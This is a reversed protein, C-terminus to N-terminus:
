NYAVRCPPPFFFDLVLGRSMGSNLFPRDQCNLYDNEDFQLINRRRPLPVNNKCCQVDFDCTEYGCNGLVPKSTSDPNPPKTTVVPDTQLCEGVEPGTQGPFPAAGGTYPGFQAPSYPTCTLDGQCPCQSSALQCDIGSNLSPRERCHMFENTDFSQLLGRRRPRPTEDMCCELDADCTEYGCNGLVPKSTSDPNPPKTTVFTTQALASSSLLASPLLFQKLMSETVQFSPFHHKSLLSNNLTPQKRFCPNFLSVCHNESANGFAVM